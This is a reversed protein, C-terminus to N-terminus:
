ATLCAPLCAPASVPLCPCVLVSIDVVLIVFIDYGCVCRDCEAATPMKDYAAFVEWELADGAGIASALMAPYDTWRASYECLLLAVRRPPRAM